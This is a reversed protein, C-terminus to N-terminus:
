CWGGSFGNGHAPTEDGSGCIVGEIAYMEKESSYM